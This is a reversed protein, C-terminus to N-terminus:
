SEWALNIPNGARDTHVCLIEDSTSPDIKYDWTAMIDERPQIWISSLRQITVNIFKAEDTTGSTAENLVSEFGELEDLHFRAFDLSEGDNNFDEMIFKDIHAKYEQLNLLYRNVIEPSWDSDAPFDLWINVTRGLLPIEVNLAEKSATDVEGFYKIQYESM